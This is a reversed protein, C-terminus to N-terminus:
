KWRGGFLYCSFVAPLRRPLWTRTQTYSFSIAGPRPIRRQLAVVASVPITMNLIAWVKDAPSADVRANRGSTVQRGTQM